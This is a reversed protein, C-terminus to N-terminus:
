STPQNQSVPNACGSGVSILYKETAKRKLFGCGLMAEIQKVKIGEQEAVLTITLATPRASCGSLPVAQLGRGTKAPVLRKHFM